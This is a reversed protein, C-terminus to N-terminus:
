LPRKTEVRDASLGFVRPGFLAKAASFLCIYLIEMLAERSSKVFIM